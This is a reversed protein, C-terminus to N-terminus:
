ARFSYEECSKGRTVDYVTGLSSLLISKEVWQAPNHPHALVELPSAGEDLEFRNGKMANVRRSVTESLEQWSCARAVPHARRDISGSFMGCM